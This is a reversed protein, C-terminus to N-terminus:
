KAASELKLKGVMELLVEYDPTGKLSVVGEVGDDLFEQIERSNRFGSKIAKMFTALGLQYEKLLCQLCALNYLSLGDRIGEVNSAAELSRATQGAFFLLVAHQVRLNEDDPRLKLHREFIPVAISAWELCKAGLKANNSHLVLNWLTALSDPNLRNADEFHTVAEAFKGIEAYYFALVFHSNQRMPAKQVYEKAIKEAEPFRRQLLYILFLAHYAEWQDPKLRLGEYALQEAEILLEPTSGYNRCFDAIWSAKYCYALAYNPDLAIAETDLRIALQFGEKTSRIAFERAKIHLEYAEANETGREQVLTKEEKTLHLKLGDVVKQAVAEQMDFIDKFEGRHSEQWLYDGTEIDLLSVSIKIQEGFKRVSGEIFYRTHFERGIEVTRLKAGRLGLSTNRDLLRLSKIHGLADILEGALGDAFWANDEGTPSFDEFPLVILSKRHDIEKMMVKTPQSATTAELGLKGLARIIANIDAMPARQIGALHYQLDESLIVPELDLPLIKKKKEAALSVEKHVNTSVNSATSLLVVFASCQDIAQVIEKSWSSSVEIRAKDMWCSLGASVLLKILQDAKAHDKSSYSIFIDSM